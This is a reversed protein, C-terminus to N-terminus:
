NKWQDLILQENTLSNWFQKNIIYPLHRRVHLPSFSFFSIIFFMMFLCTKEYLQTKSRNKNQKIKSFADEESGINNTLIPFRELLVRLLLRKCINKLTPARLFKEINVFLVQTSDRKSLAPARFAQMKILFSIGVCINEQSYQSIKLFVQSLNDLYSNRFTSAFPLFLWWLIIRLPVPLSCICGGSANWSFLQLIRLIWLFVKFSCRSQLVDALPQKQFPPM